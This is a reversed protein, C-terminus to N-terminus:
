KTKLQSANATLFARIQEAHGLVREWQEGYLTVPFRSNIGYLSVGGSKGVKMTLPRIKKAKLRTNEARLAELEAQMTVDSMKM